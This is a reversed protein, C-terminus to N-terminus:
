REAIANPYGRKYVSYAGVSLVNDFRSLVFPWRFTVTMKSARITM